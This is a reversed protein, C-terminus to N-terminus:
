KVLMMKRTATLGDSLLRYYYVGSAVPRGGFDRGNWVAAHTAATMKGDVLTRVLRGAVDFIRLDVHGPVPLSFEITTTPNFPNPYNDHLAYITPIDPAELAPDIFHGASLCWSNLTGSDLMLEDAVFLTWDGSLPDGAFAGLDGAPALEAPYWGVLDDALGGSRAHLTVTTGEPSTLRVLLDDRCTHTIDVYVSLSTVVAQPVSVSLVDAVGAPDDDPIALAPTRCATHAVDLALEVGTLQEEHAVTAEVSEAAYGDKGATITYTNAYLDAFSWAGDVDTVMSAGTSLEVTVGDYETADALTVTGSISATPVIVSEATLWAAANELLDIRTADLV